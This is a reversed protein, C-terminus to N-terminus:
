PLCQGFHVDSFSVSQVLQSLSLEKREMKLREIEKRFQEERLLCQTVTLM